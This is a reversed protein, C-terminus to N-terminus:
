SQLWEEKAKEKQERAKRIEKTKEEAQQQLWRVSRRNDSTFNKKARKKSDRRDWRSNEEIDCKM